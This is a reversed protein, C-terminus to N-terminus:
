KYPNLPRTKWRNHMWLWQSPFKRILDELASNLRITNEILDAESDDSSRTELPKFITILHSGDDRRIDFVNLIPVNARTAFMIPGKAMSASIGLFDIFVGNQGADQDGLIVVCYGNKLHRLVQRGALKKEIIEGGHIIRYRNVLSDLRHNKFRQAVASLKRTKSALVHFILEWNGFHATVILVGRGSNIAQDLHEIGELEVMNMIQDANYKPFRLFEVLTKGMNQFSQKAIIELEKSTKDKFVMHLNKLAIQRRKKLISYVINGIVFGLKLASNLSIKRVISGIILVIIYVSMDVLRKAFTYKNAM